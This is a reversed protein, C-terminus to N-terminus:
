GRAKGKLCRCDSEKALGQVIDEALALCNPCGCAGCDIGPLRKAMADIKKLKTMARAMDEDLRIGSRPAPMKPFRYQQWCDSEISKGAGKERFVGQNEQLFSKLHFRAIYPNQVLFSGGLCGLPCSWAEILHIEELLGSEAFDLIAAVQRLGDVVITKGISRSESWQGATAWKVGEIRFPLPAQPDIGQSKSRGEAKLRNFLSSFSLAGGYRPHSYFPDKVASALALCPAVYYLKGDPRREGFSAEWATAAIHLPLVVPVLNELLSTYKVQILQIVVPCTSSIAPRPIAPLGVYAELARGYTGLAESWDHVDQFGIRLFAETLEELSVDMGMQWQVSPDLIAVAREGKGIENLAKTRIGWAQYPCASLCQGCQICRHELVFAKGGRIRIAETPCVRMCHTCARCQEVMLYFLSEMPGLPKM